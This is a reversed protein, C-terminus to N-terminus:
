SSSDKAIETVRLLATGRPRQVEVENGVALGLLARGLPSAASIRGQKPDTEDPGVLAYRTRKGDEDEVAVVLGFASRLPEAPPPVVDVTALTGELLAAWQGLTQYRTSAGLIGARLDREAADRDLRAQKLKQQLEAFGRPTIPRREGSPPARNAAPVGDSEESTFAKSM